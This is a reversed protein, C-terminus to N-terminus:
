ETLSRTVFRLSHISSPYMSVDTQFRSCLKIVGSIRGDNLSLRSSLFRDRDGSFRPIPKSGSVEPDVSDVAAPVDM